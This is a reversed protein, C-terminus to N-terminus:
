YITLKSLERHKRRLVAAIQEDISGALSIYTAICSAHQGIRHIRKIAQLNDAPTWSPEVLDVYTAATLTVGTGATKIQCVAVRTDPSTQFAKIAKRKAAPTMEGTLAVPNHPQLRRMLEAIVARHQCILVIKGGDCCIRDARAAVAPTKALGILRRVTAIHPTTALTWDRTEIAQVIDDALAPERVRLQDMIHEGPHCDEGPVALTEVFLPPLQLDVDDATRRLVLRALTANLDAENKVGIIKSGYIGDEVICYRDRFDLSTGDFLGAFALWTYLESANNPALTGTLGWVRGHFRSLGQRGIIRKSRKAGPEKLYHAEDVILVDGCRAALAHRAADKTAGDYSAILVGDRPIADSTGRYEHIRRLTPSFKAWAECWDARMIAPCIVTITEAGVLDCARVAQATKGLGMEDGIIGVRHRALFQAGAEQFPYLPEPM